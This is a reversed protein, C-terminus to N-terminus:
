CTESCKENPPSPKEGSAENFQMMVRGSSVAMVISLVTGIEEQTIGLAKRIAAYHIADCRWAGVRSDWRWVSSAVIDPLEKRLVNTLLLTGRAFSLSIQKNSKTM